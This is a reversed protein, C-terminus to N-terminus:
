GLDVDERAADRPVGDAVELYPGSVSVSMDRGSPDSGSVDLGDRQGAAGGIPNVQVDTVGADELAAVLDDTDGQAGVAIVTVSYRRRDVIGDGGADFEGYSDQVEAGLADLVGPLVQRAADLVEDRSADLDDASAGGGGGCGSLALASLAAVAAAVQVRRSM